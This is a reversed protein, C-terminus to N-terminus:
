MIYLSVTLSVRVRRPGYAGEGEGCCCVGGGGAHGAAHALTAPGGGGPSVSAVPEGGMEVVAAAASSSSATSGDSAEACMVGRRRKESGSSIRRFFSLPNVARLVKTEKEHEGPGFERVRSKRRRIRPPIFSCSCGCDIKELAWVVADLAITLLIGGFFCLTAALEYHHPTECCFNIKTEEWIETFSVYLMVGAALGLAAALYVTNSRKVFPVFPFFAGLTTALGAGITLGFALGIHKGSHGTEGGGEAEALYDECVTPYPCEAFPSEESPALSSCNTDNRLPATSNSGDGDLTRRGEQGGAAVALRLSFVAAASVLVLAFKSSLGGGSGFRSQMM